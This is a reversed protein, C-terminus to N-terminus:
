SAEDEDAKDAFEPVEGAALAKAQMVWEDRTVRGHFGELNADVWAVEAESWSALQDFHWYGMSNLLTEMKPGVGKIEKLDDASGGRPADLGEPKGQSSSEVAPAPATSAVPAIEEEAGRPAPVAELEAVPVAAPDPKNSHDAATVPAPDTLKVNLVNEVQDVAADDGLFYILLAFSVILIMLGAFMTIVGSLGLIFMLIVALIFSLAVSVLAAFPFKSATFPNDDSM